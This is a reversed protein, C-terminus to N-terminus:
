APTLRGGIRVPRISVATGTKDDSEVIAGCVTAAGEAPSLREGPMKRIFRQIAPEKKMGIISDYDGCM